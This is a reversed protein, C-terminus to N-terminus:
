WRTGPEHEHHGGSGAAQVGGLDRASWEAPDVRFVTGGERPNESVLLGSEIWGVVTLAGSTGPM